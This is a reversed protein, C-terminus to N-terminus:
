KFLLPEIVAKANNNMITHGSENPHLGDDLFHESNMNQSFDITMLKNDLASQKLKESYSKISKSFSESNNVVAETASGLNFYFPTPIGIIPIIANNVSRGIMEQINRLIQEDPINAYLDNTGGMIIVHTPKHRVVMFNFRTLMAQTTDGSIGSNIIEIGLDNGLLDSWRCEEDIRYGETLSDGICVIKIRTM